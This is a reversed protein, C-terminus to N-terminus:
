SDNRPLTEAILRQVLRPDIQAWPVQADFRLTGVYPGGIGPFFPDENVPNRAVYWERNSRSEVVRRLQAIARRIPVTIAYTGDDQRTQSLAFPDAKAAPSLARLISLAIWFTRDRLSKWESKVLCAKGPDRRWLTGFRQDFSFEFPGRHAIEPGNAGIQQPFLYLGFCDDHSVLWLARLLQVDPEAGTIRYWDTNELPSFEMFVNTLGIRERQSCDILDGAEVADALDTRLIAPNWMEQSVRLLWSLVPAEFLIRTADEGCFQRVDSSANTLSISLDDVVAPYVPNPTIFKLRALVERTKHDLQYRYCTVPLPRGLKLRGAGGDVLWTLPISLFLDYWPDQTPDPFMADTLADLCPAGDMPLSVPIPKDRLFAALNGSNIAPDAALLCAHQARIRSSKSLTPRSSLDLLQGHAPSGTGDWEPLDFVYLYGRPNEPRRVYEWCQEILPIDQTPESSGDPGIEHSASIPRSEHLAFWLAVDLSRTVDLFTSGPGYHQAIAEVWVAEEESPVARDEPSLLERSALASWYRWVPDRRAAGPRLGTPLISMYDKTQGRYVRVYGSRPAGLNSLYESLERYTNIPVNM